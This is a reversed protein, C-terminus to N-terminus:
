VKKYLRVHNGDEIKYGADEIQKRLADAAKFDKSARASERKELITQIEIPIDRASIEEGFLKLYLANAKEDPKAFGLGFVRDVDLIGARMNESSIDKDKLMEWVVALAGPTDLDDNLREHIRTQYSAPVMGGKPSKDVFTRLRLFATQAAELADWTFNMPTRYHAGLLLYRYSLPHYDREVLTSLSIMNGLSKSIKEDKLNLFAHHLWFRSFPKRGTVSESQAIENNHHTPMLDIGGTHIDMQEGLLARAMSSCEIHWGPFGQGWPSKWGLKEDKKWLVFDSFNKKEPNAEVRAGEKLHKLDINGLEGYRPFRSTDFYVEHTTEYAYGKEILTQILAVQAPIYDSARPFTIKDTAINLEQLDHTFITTYEEALARMNKITLALGKRKLGKTMKDDGRDADDSLHGFDTINIVQKVTMDNYELIRRLTDAFVYSRLNGIHSVDYVTPGCNYMKVPGSTPPTFIETKDELTNHLYLAPTSPAVKNKKRLLGFM